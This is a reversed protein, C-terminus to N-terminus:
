KGILTKKPNVIPIKFIGGTNAHYFADVGVNGFGEYYKSWGGEVNHTHRLLDPNGISYSYIDYNVFSTLQDATPVSTRHTYSLTFNHMNPTRYTLHLSPVVPVWHGKTVVHTYGDYTASSWKEGLLLGAKVTLYGFRRLLTTYAHYKFNHSTKSYSRLTDRHMSPLSDSTYAYSSPFDYAAGAGIELESVARITWVAM